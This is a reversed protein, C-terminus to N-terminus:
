GKGQGGLCEVILSISISNSLQQTSYGTKFSGIPSFYPHLPIKSSDLQPPCINVWDESQPAQPTHQACGVPVQPPYTQQAAHKHIITSLSYAACSHSWHVVQPHICKQSSSARKM